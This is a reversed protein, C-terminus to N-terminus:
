PDVGGSKRQANRRGRALGGKRGIRSMHERDRSIVAGGKRGALRAEESTYEHALGSAHATKGGLSALLRHHQKSLRQFGRPPPPVAAGPVPTTPPPPPPPTPPDPPNPPNPPTPEEDGPQPVPVPTTPLVPCDATQPVRQM